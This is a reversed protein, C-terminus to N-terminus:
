NGALAEVDEPTLKSLRQAVQFLRDLIAASKGALADVDDKSFLRSGDGNVLAFHLVWARLNKLKELRPTDEDLVRAEFQDREHGTLERVRVTGGWEPVEVDETELDQAQLIEDRTLM